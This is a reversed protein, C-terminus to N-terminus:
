VNPVIGRHTDGYEWSLSAYCIWWGSQIGGKFSSPSCLLCWWVLGPVTWLTRGSAAQPIPWLNEGMWSKCWWPSDVSCVSVCCQSISLPFAKTFLFPIFSAPATVLMCKRLRSARELEVRNQKMIAKREKLTKKWPPPSYPLGIDIKADEDITKLFVSFIYLLDWSMSEAEPKALPCVIFSQSIPHSM